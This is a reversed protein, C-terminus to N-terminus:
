QRTLTFGINFSPCCDTGTMTGAYVGNITNGSIRATGGVGGLCPLDPYIDFNWAGSSDLDGHLAGVGAFTTQVHCGLQEIVVKKDSPLGCIAGSFTGM